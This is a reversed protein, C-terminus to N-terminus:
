RDLFDDACEKIDDILHLLNGDPVYDLLMNLAEEDSINYQTKLDMFEDRVKDIDETLGVSNYLSEVIRDM